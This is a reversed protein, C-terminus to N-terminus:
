ARGIRASFRVWREIFKLARPSVPLDLPKSSRFFQSSEGVTMSMLGNQRATIVPDGNLIEDAEVLQAKKFAALMRPSLKGIQEPTMNRLTAPGVWDTIRNQEDDMDPVVRLQLLREYAQILAKERDDRSATGVWGQIQIDSFDEALLQAQAYNQLTNIGFALATSAQLLCSASLEIVSTDTAVQLEVTRIGRLAPAALVTLPAPITVLVAGDVVATLDLNTWAQLVAEAEDLIRYSLGAPVLPSGAEDALAVKLTIAFGPTYNQLRM